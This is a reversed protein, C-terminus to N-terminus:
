ERSWRTTPAEEAAMAAYMREVRAPVVVNINCDNCCQGDAVPAANNGFGPFSKRCIVCGSIVGSAKEARAKRAPNRMLLLKEQDTLRKM